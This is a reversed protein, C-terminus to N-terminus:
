DFIIRIILFFEIPLAHQAFPHSSLHMRPKPPSVQPFSIVQFDLRLHLAINFQIKLIDTPTTSQISKTWSVSLHHATTFATIFKGTGYLAPYKKVPQPVILQELVVTSWLSLALSNPTLAAISWRRRLRRESPLHCGGKEVFLYKRNRICSCSNLTFSPGQVDHPSAPCRLPPLPLPLAIGNCAQVPGSPELLNLSGSKLFTRCM